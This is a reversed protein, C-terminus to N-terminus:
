GRVLPFARFCHCAWEKLCGYAASEYHEINQGVSNLAASRAPSGKFDPRSEGGEQLLGIIAKCKRAKVKKGCAKFVQELSKVHSETELLHSQMLRQLHVCKTAILLKPM